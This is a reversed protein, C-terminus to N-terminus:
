NLQQIYKPKVDGFLVNAGSDVLLRVKNNGVSRKYYIEHFVILQYSM